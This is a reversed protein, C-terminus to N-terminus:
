RDLSRYKRIATIFSTNTVAMLAGYVMATGLSFGLAFDEFGLDGPLKVAGLVALALTIIGILRNM